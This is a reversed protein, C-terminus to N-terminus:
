NFFCVNSQRMIYSTHSMNDWCIHVVLLLAYCYLFMYLSFFTACLLQYSTCRTFLYVMRQQEPTANALASALAGIPIPQSMPADRMPLGGMDYPSLMGGVVGPIPIDPMNRGPPYRQVRGRPFM